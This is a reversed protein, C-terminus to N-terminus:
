KRKKFLSFVCKRIHGLCLVNPEISNSRHSLKIQGSTLSVKDESCEGDGKRRRMEGGGGTGASGTVCHTLGEKEPPPSVMNM